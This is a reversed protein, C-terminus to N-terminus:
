KHWLQCNCRFIDNVKLLVRKASYLVNLFIIKLFAYVLLCVRDDSLFSKEVKNVLLNSNRSFIGYYKINIIDLRLFFVCLLTSQLLIYIIM